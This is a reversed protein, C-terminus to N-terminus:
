DELHPALIGNGQDLYARIRAARKPGVGDIQDLEEISTSRLRQYTGFRKQIRERVRDPIRPVAALARVGRPSIESDLPFLGLTEGVQATHYLDETSVEALRPLVSTGRRPKRPQYDANVLDVLDGVGAVQVKLDAGDLIEVAPQDAREEVGKGRAGGGLSRAEAVEGQSQQRVVRHRDGQALVRAGGHWDHEDM